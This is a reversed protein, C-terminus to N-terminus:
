GFVLLRQRRKDFAASSWATIGKVGMVRQYSDYSPSGDKGADAWEHPKKQSDILGSNPVECWTGPRLQDVDAKESCEGDYPFADNGFALFGVALLVIASSCPTGISRTLIM